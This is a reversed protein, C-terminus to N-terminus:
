ADRASRLGEDHQRRRILRVRRVAPGSRKVAGAVREADPGLPPQALLHMERAPGARMAALGVERVAGVIQDVQLM